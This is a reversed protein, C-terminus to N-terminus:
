FLLSFDHKRVKARIEHRRQHLKEKNDKTYESLLTPTPEKHFLEPNTTSASPVTAVTDPHILAGNVNLRLIDQTHRNKEFRISISNRHNLRKTDRILTLNIDGFTTTNQLTLIKYFSETKDREFKKKGMSLEPSLMPESDSLKFFSSSISPPSTSSALTEMDITIEQPPETSKQYIITIYRIFSSVFMDPSIKELPNKTINEVAIKHANRKEDTALEPKNPLTLDRYLEEAFVIRDFSLMWMSANITIKEDPILPRASVEYIM